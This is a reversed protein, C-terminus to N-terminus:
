RRVGEGILHFHADEISPDGGSCIIVTAFGRQVAPPIKMLWRRGVESLGDDNKLYRDIKEATWYEWAISDSSSAHEYSEPLFALVGLGHNRFLDDWREQLFNQRELIAAFLASRNM